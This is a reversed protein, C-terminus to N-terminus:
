MYSYPSFTTAKPPRTDSVFNDVQVAEALSGLLLFVYIVFM